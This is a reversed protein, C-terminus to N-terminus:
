CMATATQAHCAEGPLGSLRHSKQYAPPQGCLMPRACSPSAHADCPHDHRISFSTHTHDSRTHVPVDSTCVPVFPDTCLKGLLRSPLCTKSKLSHSVISHTHFMYITTGLCRLVPADGLFLVHRATPVYMYTGLVYMYMGTHVLIVLFMRLISKQSKQSHTIISQTSSM